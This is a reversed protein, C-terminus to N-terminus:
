STAQLSNGKATKNPFLISGFIKRKISLFLQITNASYVKGRYKSGGNRNPFICQKQAHGNEYCIKHPLCVNKCHFIARWQATVPHELPSKRSLRYRLSQHLTWLQSGDNWSKLKGVAFFIDLILVQTALKNVSGWRILVVGTM